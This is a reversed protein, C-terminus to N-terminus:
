SLHLASEGAWPRLRESLRPARDAGAGLGWLAGGGAAGLVGGQAGLCEPLGRGARGREVAVSSPRPRAAASRAGHLLGQGGCGGAGQGSRAPAAGWRVLMEAPLESPLRRYWLDTPSVSAQLRPSVQVRAWALSQSPFFTLQGKVPHPPTPQPLPLGTPIPLSRRPEREEIHVNQFLMM